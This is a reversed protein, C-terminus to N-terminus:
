FDEFCDEKKCFFEEHQNCAVCQGAYDLLNVLRDVIYSGSSNVFAVPLRSIDARPDHRIEKLLCRM